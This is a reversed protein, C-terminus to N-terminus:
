QEVIEVTGRVETEGEEDMRYWRGDDFQQYEKGSKFGRYIVANERHMFGAEKLAELDYGVWFWARGDVTNVMGGTQKNVWGAICKGSEVLAVDTDGQYRVWTQQVFKVVKIVKDSKRGAGERKGGWGQKAAAERQELIFDLESRLEQEYEDVHLAFANDQIEEDTWGEIEELDEDPLQPLVLIAGPTEYKNGIQNAWLVRYTGDEFLEVKYSSGSFGAKTSSIVGAKFDESSLFTDMATKLDAM